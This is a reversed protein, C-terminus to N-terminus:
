AESRSLVPTASTRREPAAGAGMSDLVILFVRKQTEKM